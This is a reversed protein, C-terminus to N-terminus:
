KRNDNTENHLRHGGCAPYLSAEKEAEANFDGLVTKIDYKPVAGCVKELSSYFQEKVVEDKEENPAYISISTLNYYKLEVVIECNRETVPDFRLLNDM